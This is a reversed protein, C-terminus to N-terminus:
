FRFQIFKCQICQIGRISFISHKEFYIKSNIYEKQQTIAVFFLLHLHINEFDLVYHIWIMLLM